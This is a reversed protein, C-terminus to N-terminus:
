YQGSSTSVSSLKYAFTHADGEERWINDEFSRLFVRHAVSELIPSIMLIYCERDCVENLCCIFVCVLDDVFLIVEESM